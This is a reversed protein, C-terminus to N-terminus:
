LESRRDSTVRFGSQPGMIEMVGMIGLELFYFHCFDYDDAGTAHARYYGVFAGLIVIHEGFDDESRAGFRFAVSQGCTEAILFPNGGVRDVGIGHFLEDFKEFAM